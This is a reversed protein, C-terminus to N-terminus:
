WGRMCMVMITPYDRQYAEITKADVTQLQQASHVNRHHTNNVVLAEYLADTVYFKQAIRTYLAHYAANPQYESISPM